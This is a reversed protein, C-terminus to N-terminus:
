KNVAGLLQNSFAVREGRSSSDSANLFQDAPDPGFLRAMTRSADGATFILPCDPM